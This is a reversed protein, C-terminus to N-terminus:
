GTAGLSIFVINIILLYYWLQKDTTPKEILDHNKSTM